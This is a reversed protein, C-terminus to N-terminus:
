AWWVARRPVTVHRLEELFAGHQVGDLLVWDDSLWGVNWCSLLAVVAAAAGVAAVAVLLRPGTSRSLM